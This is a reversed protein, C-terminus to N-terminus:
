ITRFSNDLHKMFKKLSPATVIKRPIRNRHGVVGQAESMHIPVLTKSQGRVVVTGCFVMYLKISRKGTNQKQCCKARPDNQSLSRMINDLNYVKKKM